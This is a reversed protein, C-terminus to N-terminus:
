DQEAVVYNECGNTLHQGVTNVVNLYSAIGNDQNDTSVSLTIPQLATLLVNCPQFKELPVNVSDRTIPHNSSTPTLISHPEQM